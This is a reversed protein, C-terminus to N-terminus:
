HNNRTALETACHARILRSRSDFVDICATGTFRSTDDSLELHRTVRQMEVVSGDWDFRYCRLVANYSKGGVHRWTGHGPGDLGPFVSAGTEVLAGGRSFIGKAHLTKLFGWHCL